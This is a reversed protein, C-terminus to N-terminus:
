DRGSESADDPRIDRYEIGMKHLYDLTLGIIAAYFKVQDEEMNKSLLEREKM